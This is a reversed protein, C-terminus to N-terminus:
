AQTEPKGTAGPATESVTEKKKEDKGVDHHEARTALDKDVAEAKVAVTKKASPRPAYGFDALTRSVEKTEGVQSVIFKKLLSLMPQAAAIANQERQVQAAYAAKAQPTAALASLVGDLVAQVDSAAYTKGALM